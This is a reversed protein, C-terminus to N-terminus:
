SAVRGDGPDIRSEAGANEGVFWNVAFRVFQPGSRLNLKAKIRQRHSEITKVSLGLTHATERTTMGKGVSHLVQLERRSLRDVPNASKRKGKAHAGRIMNAAVEESVCIGGEIVRRLCRVIQESTAHKMMYGSAGVSLMREAYMAEDHVSLVLIPLRPYLARVERLLGIADGHILSIDAVIVDPHTERIAGCAGSLDDAEACVWLDDEHEIIKRLGERVLPHRDIILIGATRRKAGSDHAPSMSLSTGENSADM